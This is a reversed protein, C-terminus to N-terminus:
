KSPIVHGEKFWKKVAAIYEEKPVPPPERPVGNIAIGPNWAWLVLADETLHHLTEDPTRGGNRKPDMMSRAIETTTLGAWSMSAPALSWKPAGPVGSYNNNETQHCTTCDTAKFGQNNEGRAIGFYHPHSDDGQKPVNDNPHCNVCRPHTLVEMMTDFAKNSASSDAVSSAILVYDSTNSKTNGALVIGVILVLPFVFQLKGKM